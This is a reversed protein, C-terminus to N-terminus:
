SHERAIFIPRRKTEYYMKSVYQGLIGLCLFQMGCIFVMICIMSTWGEVSSHWILQRIALVIITLASVFCFLIGMLSALALPITSFAVIGLFLKWFSWKTEGAVREINKYEFWKTRFGVWEFLGKSFRNYEPMDLLAQVVSRKMLRYDRAGDVLKTKSICNIFRYFLRAFLSRIPPEGDRSVRRTGACDYGDERLAKLMEPLLAPPDQLDADMIVVYDGTSYQLGAYIAAEKGFNRSFSVYKVAPDNERYEKLINLTDDSSGDDIFWLEYEMGELASCVRVIEEFFFPLTTSENYCPVIVTLTSM